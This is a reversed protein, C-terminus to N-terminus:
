RPSSRVEHRLAVKEMLKDFMEGSTMAETDMIGKEMLKSCLKLRLEEMESNSNM